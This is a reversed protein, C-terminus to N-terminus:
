LLLLLLWWRVGNGVCHSTRRNFAFRHFTQYFLDLWFSLDKRLEEHTAGRLLQRALFSPAVLFHFLVNRYVDLLLDESYDSLDAM